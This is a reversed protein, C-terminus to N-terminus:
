WKNSVASFGGVWTRRPNRGVLTVAGHADSGGAKQPKSKPKRTDLKPHQGSDRQALTVGEEGPHGRLFAKAKRVQRAGYKANLRRLAARKPNTHQQM